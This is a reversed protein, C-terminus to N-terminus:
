CYFLFNFVSLPRNEYEKIITRITSISINLAKARKKRQITKQSNQAIRSKM